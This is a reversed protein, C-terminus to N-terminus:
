ETFIGFIMSGIVEFLTELMFDGVIEGGFVAGPVHEWDEPHQRCPEKFNRMLLLSLNNILTRQEVPSANAMVSIKNVASNSFFKKNYLATLLAKFEGGDLWIGKHKDCVDIQIGCIEQQRMIEKGNVPCAAPSNYGPHQIDPLGLAKIDGPLPLQELFNSRQFWFGHCKKCFFYEVRGKYSTLLSIKDRPCQM